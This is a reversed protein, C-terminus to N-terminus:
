KASDKASGPAAGVTHDLPLGEELRAILERAYDSRPNSSHPAFAVLQLLAKAQADRGAKAFAGAAELSVTDVQPALQHALQLINLTNESPVGGSWLAALGYIYLSPYHNPDLKYLQVGLPKIQTWLAPRLTPEAHGQKFLRLMKLYLAEVDNPDKALVKELAADGAASDGYLIESAALTRLAFADDPFAKTRRRVTSLLDKGNSLARDSKEFIDHSMARAHYLLLSDAVKPLKSVKIDAKIERRPLQRILIQNKRLYGRIEADFQDLDMGFHEKLAAETDEGRGIALQFKVLKASREPSDMMYHTVLWAEPYFMFNRADYKNPNFLYRIPLWVNSRLAAVRSLSYNGLDAVGDKFEVGALYEALGESLWGPYNAPFYQYIFHHAYEHFIITQASLWNRRGLDTRTAVAITRSAEADYYGLVGQGMNPQLTGLHGRRILYVPLKNTPPPAKTGTFVRLLADFEELRRTFDVLDDEEGDSYVVFLPSEAKLWEAHAASTFGCFCALMFFARLIRARLISTM